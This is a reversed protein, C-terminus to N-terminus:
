LLARVRDDVPGRLPHPPLAPTFLAMRLRGDKFAIGTRDVAHGVRVDM